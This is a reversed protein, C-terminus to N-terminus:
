RPQEVADLVWRARRRINADTSKLRQRLQEHLEPADVKRALRCFARFDRDDRRDVISLVVRRLRAAQAPTLMSPKIYRTLKTKVYGSRFFMLDAELFAIASELGAADGARLKEFDEWFGPPYAGNLIRSYQARAYGIIEEAEEDRHYRRYTAVTGIFLRRAQEVAQARGAGDLAGPADALRRWRAQAKTLERQPSEHTKDRGRKM